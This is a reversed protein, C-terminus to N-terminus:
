KLAVLVTETNVVDGASVNVEAVEGDSPAYVKIQMKMAELTVVVDNKKVQDGVKVEVSLVKGVMPANVQVM